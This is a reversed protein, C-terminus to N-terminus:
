RYDKDNITTKQSQNILIRDQHHCAKSCYKATNRRSHRVKFLKGCLPNLCLRETNPGHNAYDKM